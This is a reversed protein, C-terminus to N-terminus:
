IHKSISLPPCNMVNYGKADIAPHYYEPVASVPDPVLLDAQYMTLM